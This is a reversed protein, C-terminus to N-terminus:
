YYTNRDRHSRVPVYAVPAPVGSGQRSHRGSGIDISSIERSLADTPSASYVTPSREQAAGGYFGGSYGQGGQEYPNPVSVNNYNHHERLPEIGPSKGSKKQLKHRASSPDPQEQQQPSYASPSPAGKMRVNVITDKSLNRGGSGSPVGRPGFDRNRGLGYTKEPTKKEPEPAWSDVPLHDSPDIEQGNWGVIPGKPEERAYTEKGSRIQYPSHPSVSNATPPPRANPNHVGFDDPSFPADAAPSAISSVSKRMPMGRNPLQPLGADPQSTSLPSSDASEFARVPHQISYSSRPRADALPPPPQADRPSIPRPRYLPVENVESREGDYSPNAFPQPSRSRSLLPPQPSRSRPVEQSLPHPRTPTTNYPNAISNRHPLSNPASHQRSYPSPTHGQMHGTPSSGYPSQEHSPSGFSDVSGGRAPHRHVPTRQQPQAYGREVSQLPSSDPYSNHRMSAPSSGYSSVPSSGTQHHSSAYHPVVPASNSHMPPPPPAPSEDEVYPQKDSYPDGYESQWGPPVDSRRQRLQQHQYELDPIPEPYDTMPHHSDEYHQYQQEPHAQPIVPASQSHPLGIHSHPRAPAFRSQAARTRNSPPLQPLFDPPLSHQDDEYQRPDAYPDSPQYHQQPPPPPPYAAESPPATVSSPDGYLHPSYPYSQHQVEPPMTHARPLSHLDRPGHKARGPMAPGPITDPTVHRSNPNTPLPRRKVRNSGGNVSQRLDESGAVSEAVEPKPRTDYYTLEIRLEGAYKGKCNLGQWLDSKGGGPVLIEDLNVLAEGILDTAKKDENFISIKLTHYDLSDHVTFRLEQDWRPTQGGRKDTETKKAEKGLRAACYPNQKGMTKRNPLNKARDVIVVLTGIEPGDVTMDAFIGSTHNPGSPNAPRTAM